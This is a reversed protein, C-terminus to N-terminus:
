RWGQSREHERLMSNLEAKIRRATDGRWMAANALFYRVVYVADDAGYTDRLTALSHMADIYPLAAHYPQRWDRRIEAAISHLPRTSTM